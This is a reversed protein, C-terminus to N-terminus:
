GRPGGGEPPGGAQDSPGTMMLMPDQAVAVNLGMPDDLIFMGDELESSIIEVLYSTEMGTTVDLRRRGDLEGLALQEAAPREDYVYIYKQGNEEMVADIPVAFVGSNEEVIFTIKSPVGARLNPHSESLRVVIEFNGSEDVAIPSISHIAGAIEIDGTSDTTIIARMGESLNVVDYSAVTTVIEFSNLNQVTCLAGSLYDGEEFNLATVVGSIPARVYYDDLASEATELSDEATEVQARASEVSQDSLTTRVVSDRASEIQLSASREQTEYSAIASDLGAKATNLANELQSLTSQKQSMLASYDNFDTIITANTPDMKGADDLANYKRMIEAGIDSTNTYPFANTNAWAILYADIITNQSNVAGNYASQAAEIEANLNAVNEEHNQKYINYQNQADVLSREAVSLDFAAQENADYLATYADDLSDEASEVNDLADETDLTALVQGASVSDGVEIALNAIKYSAQASVNEAQVARVDVASTNGSAMIVNSLDQTNLQSISPTFLAAQVGSAIGSIFNYAVIGLIILIVLVILLVKRKKVFRKIKSM